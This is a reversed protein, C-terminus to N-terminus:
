KSEATVNLRSTLENALLFVSDKSKNIYPCRYWKLKYTKSNALEILVNSGDMCGYKDGDTLDSQSPMNWYRDLGLSDIYSARILRTYDTTISDSKTQYFEITRLSWKDSSPQRLINLSQPDNSGSLIWIRIETNNIGTTLTPLQFKSEIERTFHFAQRTERGAWTKSTDPYNAKFSTDHDVSQSGCSTLLCIGIIIFTKM